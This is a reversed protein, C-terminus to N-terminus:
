GGTLSCASSGSGSAPWRGLDGRRCGWTAGATSGMPARVSEPARSGHASTRATWWPVLTVLGQGPEKGPGAWGYCGRFMRTMTSFDGTPLTTSSLVLGDRSGHHEGPWSRLVVEGWM